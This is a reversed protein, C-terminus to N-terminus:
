DGTVLLATLNRRIQTQIVALEDEGIRKWGMHKLVGARASRFVLAQGLITVVLLHAETISDSGRLRQVLQTLLKLVRGMFGDYLVSFAATPSHQERLIMQSWPASQEHAMLAVMGDTLRLLPAIYRDSRAKSSPTDEPKKLVADIEDAIPDIRLRIQTVIREFVALYLGEKNRFHYGILAQNVGAVQAIERLSVAHFGDRAFVQTAADLLADRTTDGRHTPTIKTEM